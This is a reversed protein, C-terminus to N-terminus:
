QARMWKCLQGAWTWLFIIAVIPVAVLCSAMALCCVPFVVSDILWLWLPEPFPDCWGVLGAARVAPCGIYDHIHILQLSVVGAVLLLFISATCIKQRM